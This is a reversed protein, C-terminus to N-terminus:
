LRSPCRTTQRRGRRPEPPEGVLDIALVTAFPVRIRGAILFGPASPAIALSALVSRRPYRKRPFAARRAAGTLSAREAAVRRCEAVGKCTALQKESLNRQSNLLM